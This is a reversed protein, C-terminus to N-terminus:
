PEIGLDEAHQCTVWGDGSDHCECYDQVVHTAYARSWGLNDLLADMTLPQPEVQERETQRQERGREQVALREEPSMGWWKAIAEGLGFSHALLEGSVTIQSALTRVEDANGSLRATFELGAATEQGEAAGLVASRTPTPATPHTASDTM